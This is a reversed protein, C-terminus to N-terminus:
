IDSLIISVISGSATVNDTFQFNYVGKQNIIISEYDTGFSLLPSVISSGENIATLMVAGPLINSDDYVICAYQPVLSLNNFTVDSGILNVPLDNYSGITVSGNSSTLTINELTIFNCYGLVAFTTGNNNMFNVTTCNVNLNGNGSEADISM